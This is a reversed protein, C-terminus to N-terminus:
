APPGPGGGGSDRANADAASPYPDGWELRGDPEAAHGSGPGVWSWSGPAGELRWGRYTRMYHHWRCLRALNELSTPGGDIFPLVRHDRELPETVECGPVCCKPDRANLATDVDPHVARGARAVTLVDAGKTVLISLYGEGLLERATAVAVQGVGAIACTEGDKSYGRRLAKADVTVHIDPGSGPEKTVGIVLEMLADAVYCDLRERRGEARAQAALRRARRMLEARLKAGDDPCVRGDFRVAGDPETVDRFYRRRRISEYSSAEGDASAAQRRVRDCTNRLEGLTQREAAQLLARQKSPDCTAAGAVQRAKASSLLGAKFAEAVAPLKEMQRAAALLGAAESAPEGTEAALWQAADRHGHRRHLNTEEVRRASLTKAAVVAREAESLIRVLEVAGEGTLVHPDFYSLGKQILAAGRRIQDVPLSKVPM